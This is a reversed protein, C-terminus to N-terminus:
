AAPAHASGGRRRRATTTVAAILRLTADDTISAPLGHEAREARQRDVFSAVAARDPGSM